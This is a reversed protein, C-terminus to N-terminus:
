LDSNTLMKCLSKERNENIDLLNVNLLHLVKVLYWLHIPTCTRLEKGSSLSAQRLLLYHWWAQKTCNISLSVFTMLKPRPILLMQPYTNDVAHFFLLECPKCLMILGAEAQVASECVCACVLHWCLIALERLCTAQIQSPIYDIHLVWIRLKVARCWEREQYIEEPNREAGLRNVCCGECGCM